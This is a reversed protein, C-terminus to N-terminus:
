GLAADSGPQAPRAAKPLDGSNGLALAMMPQKLKSQKDLLSMGISRLVKPLLAGGAFGRKFTEMALILSQAESKRWRQYRALLRPCDIAGQQERQESILEALAAVDMLGLNMGQGALPHISHAADAVLVVRGQVWQNAYRMRLPIRQRESVLQLPGLVSQSAATVAKAFAEAPLAQLTQAREPPVSWVISVQRSDPLPLLALPGDPWFVQRATAQHPETSALTAVLAHHQYDWHTLPLQLSERIFSNAGDAAVLLSSLLLDGSELQLAVNQDGQSIRSIGSGFLCQVNSHQSLQQYLQQRISQNDCIWGLAPLQQEAASFGLRGFSDAQWVEMQQYPAAEAAIGSWVGLGALLRQSALNLASVRSFDAAGPQPQPGKELLRIQLGLPALLLALTLGASGAGVITIDCHQM